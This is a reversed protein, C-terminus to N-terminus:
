VIVIVVGIIVAITVFVASTGVTASGGEVDHGDNVTLNYEYTLRDGNNLTEAIQYCGTDNLRLPKLVIKNEKLHLRGKYSADLYDNWSKKAISSSSAIKTGNFRITLQRLLVSTNFAVEKDVFGQLDETKVLTPMMFLIILITRGGMERSSSGM